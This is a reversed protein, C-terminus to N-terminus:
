GVGALTGGIQVEGQYLLRTSPAGSREEAELRLAGKGRLFGLKGQGDVEVQIRDPPARETLSVTGEYTGRVSGIGVELTLAFRDETQRTLRQVGPVCRRLVDEDVLLAFVRPRDAQITQSGEIKVSEFHPRRGPAAGPHLPSTRPAAPLQWERPH